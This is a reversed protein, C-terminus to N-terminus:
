PRCRRTVPPKARSCRSSTRAQCGFTSSRSTPGPTRSRARALEDGTAAEAVVELGYDDRAYQKVLERALPEDDAVLLRLLDPSM